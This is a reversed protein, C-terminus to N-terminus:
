SKKGTIMVRLFDFTVGLIWGFAFAAISETGSLPYGYYRAVLYVIISIAFASIGGALIANPRAITGGVADSTKEVAPTHIVKSFVRSQPSMHSRVEEMVSNFASSREKSNPVHSKQSYEASEINSSPQEKETGRAQELAERGAEGQQDHGREPSRHEVKENFAREIQEEYIQRERESVIPEHEPQEQNNDIREQSM